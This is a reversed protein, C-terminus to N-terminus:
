YKNVMGSILPTPVLWMILFVLLNSASLSAYAGVFTLYFALILGVVAGLSALVASTRVARRLRAAGVVAESYPGIGERCLVATLIDSHLQDEDSLEVRREAAPYEMRDVPLKFRQRLMAPTLNFDRTAMVPSVRNRILSTLAPDVTGHLTYNLAFIGALEGDIACFVANKVHLGPPLAIEMLRMFDASGVLVQENRIVGSLGGEYCFFNSVRRYIAGQARLLDHFPKDLGCGSERILTATDAVVKEAPFDGFIKIGNLSVCGPPFLDSDTVLIGSGGTATVGDWGAIAAGSKSLRQCLTLWPQGFCLAGSLSASATLTASLCWLLREPAGRGISAVISLLMSAIFLLPCIRRFIRQAGDSAQMQRGFGVPDGSWKAYTDRGNWKGEDLTVLYPHSAAAATKCALRLGRRKRYTGRLLLSIGLVIAACYPMQGERPDLKFMTLADALTAASAFLLLTDMGFELRLLGFLGRFLVDLGLLMALVQVGALALVRLEPTLAQPHPFVELTLYLAPLFLLLVLTARLRMGKLGKGYRKALDAPPLDPAPPPEKRPKRERRRSSPEEEEDTGPIFEEARRVATDDEMGEEEFMHEAYDDAKKLLRNIGQTLPSEEPGAAEEPFDLVNDEVPPAKSPKQPTPEPKPPPAKEVPPQRTAAAKPEKQAQEQGGDPFTLVRGPKKSPSSPRQSKPVVPFPITDEEDPKKKKQGGGFEALISELSFEDGGPLDENLEDDRDKAM